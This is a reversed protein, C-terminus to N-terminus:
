VGAATTKEKKEADLLSRIIGSVDCNVQQQNLLKIIQRDIAQRKELLRLYKQELAKDEGALEESTPIRSHNPLKKKRPM